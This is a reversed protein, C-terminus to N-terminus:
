AAQNVDQGLIYGALTVPDPRPFLLCVRPDRTKDGPISLQESIGTELGNDNTSLALALQSLDDMNGAFDGGFLVKRSSRAFIFGIHQPQALMTQDQPQLALRSSQYKGIYNLGVVVQSPQVSLTIQGSAVTADGLDYGDAWISVTQGELHSLGSVVASAAALRLAPLTEAFDLWGAVLSFNGGAGANVGFGDADGNLFIRPVSASPASGNTGLNVPVRSSSIFARRTATNSIDLFSAGGRFYFQTLDGTFFNTGTTTAGIAHDTRTYDITDNTLTAGPALDAIDNVYLYGQATGLSWSAVVTMWGSTAGYSNASTLKLITVGSANKGEFEWKGATTRRAVMTNGESAYITQEVTDSGGLNVTFAMTGFKGDPSTTLDAGRHLYTAGNFTVANITPQDTRVYADLCSADAAASSYINGLMELYYRYVGSIRRKVVFYVEDEGTGIGGPLSEVSIIKGMPTIIRSWGLVNERPDYLKSLVQGDKRIIYVRTEPRRSICIQGLGPRGINKHLRTLPSAVYDQIDSAYSLEMPHITSRDIFLGRSDVKEPEVDASGWSSIDRVTINTPTIPDDFASSRIVDEAADTGFIVRSLPLVWSIKGVEGTAISRWIADGDKQGTAMTEYFSSQSAWYQDLDGNWMRDDFLTIARPQGQFDSWAGERWESTGSTSSLPTLVEIGVSTPSSYSTVRVIGAQEGGVYTITVTASGSTWNGSKVGVRYYWTQNNRNKTDDVFDDTSFAGPVTTTLDGSTWGDDVDNWSVNDASEQLQITGVFTGSVVWTWTRGDSGIGTVRVPDSWQNDANIGRAQRQGTNTLEFLAGVHGPDFYNRNCTMTGNGILVSPKMSISDDLNPSQFPGDEEDTYTLSWSSSSRREIRRKATSGGAVYVVDRSQQFRLSTFASALWPTAIALDGAAAVRCYDLVALRPKVNWIEIWYSGSPTFALSHFGRRLETQEIYDGLGSASGVKFYVPGATISLELAHVIGASSTTVQQRVGGIRTGDSNLNLFGGSTAAYATVDSINTWGTSLASSFDGNTVTSTVAPRTVVGGDQIIKLVNSGFAMLYKQDIGYLWKRLYMEQGLEVLFGLGPRKSMPGAAEPFINELISATAGYNEIATRASVEDGIEGGNFSVYPSVGKAM